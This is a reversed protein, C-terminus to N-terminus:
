KFFSDRRIVDIKVDEFEDCNLDEEDAEIFQLKM